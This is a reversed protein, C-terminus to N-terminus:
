ELKMQSGEAEQSPLLERDEFFYGALREMGNWDEFDPMVVTVTIADLLQRGNQKHRFEHCEGWYGDGGTKIEDSRGDVDMLYCATDVGIEKVSLDQGKYMWGDVYTQINKEPAMYLTMTREMFDPYEEMAKEELVLRADFGKPPKYDAVLSELKKGKFEEFYFPDGFVFRQPCKVAYIEKRLGTNRRDIVNEYGTFVAEARIGEPGDPM